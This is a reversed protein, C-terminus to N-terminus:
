QRDAPPARAPARRSLTKSGPGPRCEATYSRCLPGTRLPGAPGCQCNCRWGPGPVIPPGTMAGGRPLESGGEALGAGGAPTGLVSCIGRRYAQRRQNFGVAWAGLGALVSLAPPLLFYARRFRFVEGLNVPRRVWTRVPRQTCDDQVSGRKPPAKKSPCYTFRRARSGRVQLRPGAARHPDARPRTSM